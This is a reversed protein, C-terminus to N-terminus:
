PIMSNLKQTIVDLKHSMNNINDTQNSTINTLQETIQNRIFSLTVNIYLGNADSQNSIQTSLKQITDQGQQLIIPGTLLILVLATTSIVFSLFIKDIVM